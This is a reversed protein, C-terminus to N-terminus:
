AGCLSARSLMRIRHMGSETTLIMSARVSSCARFGRVTLSHAIRVVENCEYGVAWLGDNWGSHVM